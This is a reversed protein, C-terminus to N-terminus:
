PSQKVNIAPHQRSVGAGDERLLFVAGHGYEDSRVRVLPRREATRCGKWLRQIVKVFTYVDLERSECLLEVIGIRHLALGVDRVRNQAEPAVVKERELHSRPRAHHRRASSFRKQILERM